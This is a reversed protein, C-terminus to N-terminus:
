ARKKTTKSPKRSKSKPPSAPQSAAPPVAASASTNAAPHPSRETAPELQWPAAAERWTEPDPSRLSAARDLLSDAFAHAAARTGNTDHPDAEGSALQALEQRRRDSDLVTLRVVTRLDDSPNEGHSQDQDQSHNKRRDQRHNQGHHEPEQGPSRSSGHPNQARAGGAAAVTVVQKDVRFHHDAMAAVIPQHTVCLVQRDRSLQYLKQAIAQAVRGSVGVDIEDFILTGVGDVQSFCAKLALLFRSMEGGSATEGLPQLPEGPNPSFCYVVRDGGHATPSIPELVVEFRVQDMALPQLEAILQAELTRAAAQRRDRLVACASVLDAQAAEARAELEALSQGGDGLEDLIAQLEDRRAIAEALTPGYKRCITKLDSLRDGVWALREPDSELSEGYANVQQGAEAVQTLASRVLELLPELSSDYGSMQTLTQEAKGLLDACAEGEGDSAYLLQYALYSQQQLEVIHSLRDREQELRELEDATTLDAALLDQLQFQFLDLQQLRESEAARRRELLSRAQQATEWRETVIARQGLVPEGGFRDLWDRQAQPQLLQVTQGQAAIEVLRDRVQALVAKTVSQGNLRVRSRASSRGSRGKSATVELACDLRDPPTGLTIDQATLWMQLTPDIRFQAAITARDAGTRIIRGGVKGGLVADIADLVISKGAGTEGTLVHLGEGLSWALTDILAFNEIQLSLLMSSNGIVM